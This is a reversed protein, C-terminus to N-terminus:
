IYIQPIEHGQIQEESLCMYEVAMVLDQAAMNLLWM